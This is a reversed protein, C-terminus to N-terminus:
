QNRESQFLKINNNHYNKAILLLPGLDILLSFQVINSELYSFLPSLIYEVDLWGTSNCGEELKRNWTSQLLDGERLSWWFIDSAVIVTLYLRNLSLWKCMQLTNFRFEVSTVIEKREGSNHTALYGWHWPSMTGRLCQCHTSIVWWRIGVVSFVFDAVPLAFSSHYTSDGKKVRLMYNSDM